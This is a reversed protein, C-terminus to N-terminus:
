LVRRSARLIRDRLAPQDDEPQPLQALITGAGREEALSFTEFLGRGYESWTEFEQIVVEADTAHHNIASVAEETGLIWIPGAESPEGSLVSAVALPNEFAYVPIEPQYHRHRTGPSRERHEGSDPDFRVEVGALLHIQDATIVGPRLIRWPRECVDLVTSELGVRCSGGDVIAAVRGAMETWARQFTTPSPRGSRNASPAAIPVGAATIVAAAVPHDPVRVAVTSLGATVVRSIEPPAPVVLTLPGPALERFLARATSEIQSLLREADDVSAAHVILPNDGPRNKARFVAGVADDSTADAGLGYVTETPFVVLRGARLLEGARGTQDSNLHETPTNAGTM